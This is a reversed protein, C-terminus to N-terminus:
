SSMFVVRWGAVFRSVDRRTESEKIRVIGDAWSNCRIQQCRVKSLGSAPKVAPLSECGARLIVHSYRKAFNGLWTSKTEGDAFHLFIVTGM